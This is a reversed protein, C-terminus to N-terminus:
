SRQYKWVCTCNRRLRATMAVIDLEEVSDTDKFIDPDALQEASFDLKDFAYPANKVLKAAVIKGVSGGADETAEWMEQYLEEPVGYYAYFANTKGFHVVM